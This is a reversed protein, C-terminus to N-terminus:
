PADPSFLGLQVQATEDDDRVRRYVGPSVGARDPDDRKRGGDSPNEKIIQTKRTRPTVAVTAAAREVAVRALLVSAPEDAPDQPVLKGAFADRLVAQRLREARKLNHAVTTELAEVVSLRREVEAVIRHQEALSPVGLVIKVMRTLGLDQNGVGHTYKQAQSYCFPSNLAHQVYFPKVSATLKLVAVHVWVNFERDYTNVRAIGTTGGKTYLVDNMEPKCRKCLEDHLQQSICKATAFDIGSPRVNGGSIFPVGEQAYKPSFHPGDKVSWALHGLTAWTWGRPLEPLGSTDPSAPEEYRAKWKDDKPETGRARMKALQEAEWRARRETLIRTLLDSAPEYARGEADAVARETPVLKGTCAAQLVAARYRKLNARVRKLNAVGADLLSFQREIEAVIRVQEALPAVRFAMDEIHNRRLNNINIGGALESVQNRYEKSQLFYSVFRCDIQPNVRLGYCFAGFSGYWEHLLPAAKGVVSASGSSAAIVIDGIQLYQGESVFRAPVFVVEDFNLGDGINNARLVPVLNLAPDIANQASEVAHQKDYTVGRLVQLIAGLTTLAWGRPLGGAGMEEDKGTM